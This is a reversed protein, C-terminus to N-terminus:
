GLSVFAEDHVVYAGFKMPYGLQWNRQKVAGIKADMVASYCYDSGHDSGWAAQELVGEYKGDDWFYDEAMMVEEQCHMPKLRLKRQMHLVLADPAVPNHNWRRKQM